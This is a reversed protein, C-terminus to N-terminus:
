AGEKSKTRSKSKAKAALKSLARDVLSERIEKEEEPTLEPEPALNATSYQRDLADIAAWLAEPDRLYRLPKMTYSDIAFGAQEMDKIAAATQPMDQANAYGNVITNWTVQSFEVDHKLMMDRIKEAGAIQRNYIFASLLLTWTRTSPKVHDITRGNRDKEVVPHLMDEVIQVCTRLARRNHRMASLFANYAHDTEAMSCIIPDGQNILEQYRAYIQQMKSVDPNCRLYTALAIFLVVTSPKERGQFSPQYSPPVILLDRLPTLDYLRSYMDLTSHLISSRDAEVDMDKVTFLYHSHFIKSALYPNTDLHDVTGIERVLIDVGGRDERAIADQLLVLYTHSDLRHDHDIMFKLIDNLLQSDSIKAANALVINMMDRNPKVGIELLRPLLKFNRGEPGDEITDHTLIKCCHRLVGDADMAFRPNDLRRLCAIAEIAMDTDGLQLRWAFSLATPGSLEIGKAQSTQFASKVSDPRAKRVYLSLPRHPPCIVPWTDPDLCTEVVEQYTELDVEDYKMWPSYFFRDVYLMCDGVLQFDPRDAGHATMLLFSLLLVPDNELLWLALRQWVSARAHRNMQLWADEFSEVDDSQLKALLRKSEGNLAPILARQPERRYHKAKYLEKYAIKWQRMGLQRPYLSRARRLAEAQILKSKRADEGLDSVLVPHIKHALKPNAGNHYLANRLSNKSVAQSPDKVSSVKSSVTKRRLNNRRPAPWYQSPQLLAANKRQRRGVVGYLASDPPVTVELLTRMAAELDNEEAENARPLQTSFCQARHAGSNRVWRGPSHSTLSLGRLRAQVFNHLCQSM